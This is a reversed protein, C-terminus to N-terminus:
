IQQFTAGPQFQDPNGAVTFPFRYASLRYYNLHTLCHIAFPEDPISLGRSKLLAVQEPFTKPPKIM